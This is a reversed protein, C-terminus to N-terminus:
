QGLYLGIKNFVYIFAYGAFLLKALKALETSNGIFPGSIFVVVCAATLSLVLSIIKPFWESKEQFFKLIKRKPEHRLSKIWEVIGNMLTTAVVYDVYEIEVRASNLFFHRVPIPPLNGSESNLIALKSALYISM